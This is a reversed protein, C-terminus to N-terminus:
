EYVAEELKGNNLKLVIDYYKLYEPKHIISIIIKDKLEKLVKEIEETNDKDLASTGEDILLVNYDRCLLRALCIRKIEGSSLTKSMNSVNRDIGEGKLLKELNLLKLVEIIKDDSITKDFMTINNRITSNILNCKQPLYGINKRITKKDVIENNIRIDGIYDNLGLISKFLTSKGSGNDGIIAYHTGKNFTYNVGNLIRKDNISVNLNNVSFDRVEILRSESMNYKSDISLAKTIRKQIEKTSIINIISGLFARIPNGVNNVYGILLAVTSMNIILNFGDNIFIITSVTKLLYISFMLLASSLVMKKNHTLKAKITNDFVKDLKDNFKNTLNNTKIDIISTFYNRLIGLENETSKMTAENTNPIIKINRIQFFITPLLLIVVILGYKIDISFIAFLFIASQLFTSFLDLFNYYYDDEIIGMDNLIYSIYAQNDKEKIASDFLANKVLKSTSFSINFQFYASADVVILLVILEVAFTLGISFYDSQSNGYSFMQGYISYINLLLIVSFINLLLYILISKKFKLLYKTLM